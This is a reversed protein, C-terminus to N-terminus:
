GMANYTSIWQIFSYIQVRIFFVRLERVWMTKISTSPVPTLLFTERPSNKRKAARFLYLIKQSFFVSNQSWVKSIM